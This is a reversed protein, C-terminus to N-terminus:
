FDFRVGLRLQRPNGLNRPDNVYMAYYNRFADPDNQQNIFPQYQAAALFGDDDPNGTFRFASLINRTNFLNTVWLYVNLNATKKKDETKGFQLAINRDLNLDVTFQWPLRAGNISGETSPSIEGTVPTAIVQPTYPTGSGLNAIFNIGTNQLVPKGKLMPGNYDSGEGFRYDVTGVIRHRQDYNFPAVTRLNPLGANILAQQSQITTGTGDAFQLTYSAKMWLNGTRRLDYTLTLGKVTGFDLNGFARYTSPYAGSFQRIQIMDRLERYFAEIKLSSSKSLVQQFGLAYDVTREPRLDPNDILVNRTEMYLYDAPNFRNAITPRQTLIDYHAFFLAEDSIPFSFAIRPMFNVAPTYERFANSNLPADIGNRLLPNVRGGSAVSVNPDAVEQGRANYWTDGTRYGTIAGPNRLDDVYVVFDDGINSPRTANFENFDVEGATLAEGIVYPDKPVYQNADYRDIRLGVNFILDDFAFKDMIYGSIYIPQFSAIHRNFYQNEGLTYTGSFFDEITPRSGRLRRGQADFGFYEVAPSGQNLLDEAGFMDISLQDPNINDINLFAQDYPDLGLAQRINYSFERINSRVVSYDYDILTYDNSVGPNDVNTATPNNFDIEDNHDNAYTRALTWLRVPSVSYGADNRQEFEFGVQIAHDGIDASGTGSIRFQNRIQESYRLTGQDANFQSGLYNWLGYTTPIEQGNILGNGQQIADTSAVPSDGILLGEGADIVPNIGNLVDLAAQNPGFLNFYQTTIAAYDPNFESPTYDVNVSQWGTQEYTLPNTTSLNYSPRRQIDFYGVHGYRFFSDGHTEDDSTSRAQTYDVMISYFVNRLNSSATEDDANKFRQSFKAYARWDLSTSRQNNDWNMLMNDYNFDRGRSYAATGGFTLTVTESTNVDIKAVLNAQRNRVNQRTSVKEFDNPTLFDANYLAGNITGDTQVNLRLPNALLQDRTEQKMKYVGGFYPNPDVIDTYNGSLFFGMLPRTKKGSADKKFILPGSVSGEVLNYGYRDLGVAGDGSKFGSTILEFGGSYTSSASRLSINIVGGTADGINAPIGGTIVSVEEIASKPLQSSGRVKIGDIYIWTSNTRAGRISIGGGTGASSVGAVTQALGLADRSPMKAIEERTVTGGSAGGDRDILPVKYDVIEVTKMEVGESLVADVFQIKGSSIPVGSITQTQYGVFQFQIDYTGPEIPKISYKGDIDTTGGTVLNGNLFVIVNVFALPEKSGSGTTGSVKGQLSGSSIQAFGSSWSLLILAVILYFKRQM